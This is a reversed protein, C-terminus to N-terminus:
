NDIDALLPPIIDKKSDALLKKYTRQTLDDTLPILNNSLEEINHLYYFKEDNINYVIAPKNQGLVRIMNSLTGKSVSKKGFRNLYTCNWVMFGGDCDNTMEIDKVTHMERGSLGPSVEVRKAPWDMSARNIPQTGSYYIITKHYNHESLYSQVAKDVGNADGVLIKYGKTMMDDIKETVPKPLKGFVLGNRSGSIFITMNNM